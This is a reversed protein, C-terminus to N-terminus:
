MTTLWPRSRPIVMCNCALVMRTLASSEDPFHLETKCQVGVWNRLGRKLLRAHVSDPTLANRSSSAMPMGTQLDFLDNYAVTVPKSDNYKQLEFSQEDISIIRGSFAVGKQLRVGVWNGPRLKLIRAHTKEPTLPKPTAHAMSPAILACVLLLAVCRSLTRSLTKM